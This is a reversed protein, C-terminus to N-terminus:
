EVIIKQIMEAGKNSIIRVFYMGSAVDNMEIAEHHFRVGRLSKAYVTQGTLSIVSIELDTAKALDFDLSFQGNNPNPYLQVSGDFLPDVIDVPANITTIDCFTNTCTGNSVTLCVNFAGMALYTHTPNQLTSTNGDGFDWFWSVAGNTSADTFTMPTFLPLNNGNTSYGATPATGTTLIIDDNLVCGLNDSVQVSYTGATTVQITQTIAGTSWLYGTPIAGADLTVTEGPCIVRDPGLSVTLPSAEILVTDSAVCGTSPNTVNVIYTGANLVNITQNTSGSSWVYNSGPNGADLTLTQGFCLTQNPGLAVTPPVAMTINVIDTSPCGLSNTVTVSYTGTTTVPITQNPSGNSWTFTNGPNLADLTIPGCETRDPGLNVVPAPLINLNISDEAPCGQPSTVTVYYTGPSTVVVIQSTAGTNWQYTTGLPATGGDLLHGVGLCFTTDNGLQAVANAFLNVTVTDDLSCGAPTTIAVSYVGGTQPSFTQTTDGTNWLYSSGGNLADLIGIQCQSVTGNNFPLM